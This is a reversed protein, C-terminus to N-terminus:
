EVDLICIMGADEHELIHCHYTRVGPFDGLTVAIRVVDKKRLNVTDKWAVTAEPTGNRDLVQFRFGHPHFPHDMDGENDLTWIETAGLSAHEDIRSSDFSAGNIQFQMQMMQETLTFSRAGAGTTDIPDVQRLPGGVAPSVVPPDPMYRISLLDIESSTLTGAMDETKAGRNYPLAKLVTQTGPDAMAALLVEIREAPALLIQDHPQPTAFLGGDTGIQLLTHGPIALLYYRAASGNIIRLRRVEGARLM